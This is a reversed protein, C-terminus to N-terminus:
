TFTCNKQKQDDDIREGCKADLSVVSSAPPLLKKECRAKLMLNPHEIKKANLTSALRTIVNSYLKRKDNQEATCTLSEKRLKYLVNQVM